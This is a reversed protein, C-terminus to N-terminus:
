LWRVKVRDASKEIRSSYRALSVDIIIRMVGAIISAPLRFGDWYCFPMIPQRIRGIFYSCSIREWPFQRRFRDSDANAPKAQTHTIHQDVKDSAFCVLGVEIANQCQTSDVSQEIGPPTNAPSYKQFLPRQQNGPHFRDEDRQQTIVIVTQVAWKAKIIKKRNENTCHPMRRPDSIGGQRQVGDSVRCQHQIVGRERAIVEARKHQCLDKQDPHSPRTGFKGVQHPCGCLSEGFQIQFQL